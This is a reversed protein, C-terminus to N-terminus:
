TGATRPDARAVTGYGVVVDGRYLCAIQGPATRELPEALEVTMRRPLSDAARAAAAGNASLRCSQRAGRARIKVADVARADNRLTVDELELADTLLSERPGVTLTNTPADTALM